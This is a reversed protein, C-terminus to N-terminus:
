VIINYATDDRQNVEGTSYIKVHSQVDSFDTQLTQNKDWFIGVLIGLICIIVILLFMSIGMVIKKMIKQKKNPKEKKQLNKKVVYSLIDEEGANAILRTLREPSVERICNEIDEEQVFLKNREYYDLIERKSIQGCESLHILERFHKVGLLQAELLSELLGNKEALLMEFIHTNNMDPTCIFMIVNKLENQNFEYNYGGIAIKYDPPMLNQNESIYEIKIINYFTELVEKQSMWVMESYMKMKKVADGAAEIATYVSDDEYQFLERYKDIFAKYTLYDNYSSFLCIKKLYEKASIFFYEAFVKQNKNKFEIDEYEKIILPENNIQANCKEWFAAIKQKELNTKVEIDHVTSIIEKQFENDLVLLIKKFKPFTDYFAIVNKLLQYWKGLQECLELNIYRANLESLIKRQQWEIFMEPRYQVTSLSESLSLYAKFKDDFEYGRQEYLLKQVYKLYFDTYAETQFRRDIVQCFIGYLIDKEEHNWEHAAYLALKDQIERLPRGTWDLYNEYFQIYDRANVKGVADLQRFREFWEGRKQDEFVFIQAMEVIVKPIQRLISETVNRLDIYPENIKSIADRTYLQFRVRGSVHKKSGNSYTSFGLVKRLGDPIYQYITGVIDLARQNYADGEVDLILNVKQTLTTSVNLLAAVIIWIQNKELADTNLHITNDVSEQFCDIDQESYDKIEIDKIFKNQLLSLYNTGSLEENVERLIFHAYFSPTLINSMRATKALLLEEKPLTGDLNTVVCTLSFPELDVQSYETDDLVMEYEAYNDILKKEQQVTLEKSKAITRYNAGDNGYLFQM